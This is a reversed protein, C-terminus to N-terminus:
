SGFDELTKILRDEDSIIIGEKLMAQKDEPLASIPTGTIEKLTMGNVSEEYFVAVYGDQVGLVFHQGSHGSINKRIVVKDESFELVEWDLITESLEPETLGILFFPAVESAEEVENDALYYYEYVITTSDNIKVEEPDEIELINIENGVTGRNQLLGDKQIYAQVNPIEANRIIETSGEEPKSNFALYGYVIGIVGITVCAAVTVVFTVTKSM